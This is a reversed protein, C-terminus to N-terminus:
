WWRADKEQDNNRSQNWREYRRLSRACHCAGSAGLWIAKGERTKEVKRTYEQRERM